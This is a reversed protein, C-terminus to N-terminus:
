CPLCMCIRRAGNMWGCKREAMMWIMGIMTMMIKLLIIMTKYIKSMMMINAIRMM